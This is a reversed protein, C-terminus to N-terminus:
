QFLTQIEAEEDDESDLDDEAASSPSIDLATLGPERALLERIPSLDPLGLTVSLADDIKKRSPDDALQAIAKLKNECLRDYAKALTSLQNEDLARVDLVPMSEWAPQKMQMWASRTVVRRGFYLLLSPSSNLWLTLGKEQEATFSNNKLAWWTNGLVEKPLRIGIVKHTVPWLREALLIRGARQWLHMGYNPGRPSKEWVLLHANPEQQITTVEGANHGWFAPHPSWDERSIKFGEHIRKRDPGLAGLADLRCIPVVKPESQGPVLLEKKQLKWCTRLLETQAFLIGTWNDEDKAAPISVLEGVKATSSRIATLGLGEISVPTKIHEIRNALDLAEHISGPNRWLNVYTTPKPSESIERKRAIFLIESLDTNESFNPREADHSAIVTELHYGNAILKRTRGWAEGSAV